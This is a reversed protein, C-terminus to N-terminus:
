TPGRVTSDGDIATLFLPFLKQRCIPFWVSVSLQFLQSNSFFIRGGKLNPSSIKCKCCYSSTGRKVGNEKLKSVNPDKKKEKNKANNRKEEKSFSRTATPPREQNSASTHSLSGIGDDTASPVVYTSKLQRRTVIEDHTLPFTSLVDAICRVGDDSIFNSGLNLSLLTRNFRLGKSQQFPFM